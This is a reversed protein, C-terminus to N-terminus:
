RRLRQLLGRRRPGAPRAPPERGALLASPVDETLWRGLSGGVTEAAASLGVERVGPGHADSAILHALELELLRHACGAAAAGLRGDVSAATLQIAAGARVLADVDGPREQVALNREPHAIVPVVGDGRLRRCEGALEAPWGVYPFELLLVRPNGGLGFRALEDGDLRSLRGLAIEGGPLLELDVDSEGLAAQVEALRAEMEEATTPYDDRVHPTAAVVRIGDAVMARAMALAAELDQAGDDLHPLVHSHLDIM